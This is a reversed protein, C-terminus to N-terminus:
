HFSFSNILSTLNLKGIERSYLLGELEMRRDDESSLSRRIISEAYLYGNERDYPDQVPSFFSKIAIAMQRCADPISDNAFVVCPIAVTKILKKKSSEKISSNHAKIACLANWTVNFSADSGLTALSRCAPVWCVYNAIKSTKKKVNLTSEKRKSNSDVYPM